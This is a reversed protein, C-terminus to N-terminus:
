ASRVFGLMAIVGGGFFGAFALGTLAIGVASASDALRPHREILSAAIGLFTGIGFAVFAATLWGKLPNPNGAGEFLGTLAILTAAAAAGNLTLSTRANACAYDRDAETERGGAKAM